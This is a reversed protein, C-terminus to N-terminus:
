EGRQDFVIYWVSSSKCFYYARMCMMRKQEAKTNRGGNPLLVLVLRRRPCGWGACPSDEGFRLARATHTREVALQSACQEMVAYRKPNCNRQTRKFEGPQTKRLHGVIFTANPSAAARNNM